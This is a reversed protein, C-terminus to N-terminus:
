KFEKSKRGAWNIGMYADDTMLHTAVIEPLLHRHMREWRLAFGLDSGGANDYLESYFKWNHLVDANVNFLQFFGMPVYGGHELFMVRTATNWPGGHIWTSNEYQAHTSDLFRRWEEYSTCDMRDIGYICQENLDLQELIFRTLQPLVIDADLHVIWDTPSLHTIGANIGIAKNFKTGWESEICPVGLCECVYKTKADDKSTVVVVEDFHRKNYPLTLSLYDSYNVCTIVAQINM